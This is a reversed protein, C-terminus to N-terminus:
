GAPLDTAGRVQHFIIAGDRVVPGIVDYGRRLLAKILTDIESAAIATEM